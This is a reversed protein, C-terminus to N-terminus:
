KKHKELKLLLESAKKRQKEDKSGLIKYLKKEILEVVENFCNDKEIEISDVYEIYIIGVQICFFMIEHDTYRTSWDNMEIFLNFLNDKISNNKNKVNPTGWHFDNVEASEGLIFDVSVNFLKSIQIIQEINPLLQDEEWNLVTLPSEQLRSAFESITLENCCRILQIRKGLLNM